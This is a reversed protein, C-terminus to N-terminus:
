LGSEATNEESTEVDVLSVSFGHAEKGAFPGKTLMSKGTYEASITDGENVEEMQKDLSGCKNIVFTKGIITEAFDDDEFQADLVKIKHNDNGFQDTHIGIYTGIVTDGASYDDLKRFTTAGGLSKKVSVKLTRKTM